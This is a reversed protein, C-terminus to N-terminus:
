KSFRVLELITPIVERDQFGLLAVVCCFVPYAYFAQHAPLSGIVMVSVGVVVFVSIMFGIPMISRVLHRSLAIVLFVVGVILPFYQLGILEALGTAVVVSLFISLALMVGQGASICAVVAIEIAVGLVVFLIVSESIRLLNSYDKTYFLEVFPGLVLLAGIVFVGALFVAAKGYRTELAAEGREVVSLMTLKPYPLLGIAGFVLAIAIKYSSAMDNNNELFFWLVPLWIVSIRLVAPSTLFIFHKRFVLRCSWSPRRNLTVIESWFTLLVFVLPTSYTLTISLRVDIDLLHFIWPYIVSGLGQIAALKMVVQNRLQGTLVAVLPVYTAIMVIIFIGLTVEAFTFQKSLANTALIAFLFTIVALLLHEVAAQVGIGWQEGRSCEPLGSVSRVVTLAVADNFVICTMGLLALASNLSSFDTVGLLNPLAVNSAGLVAFSTLQSAYGYRIQKVLNLAQYEIREGM